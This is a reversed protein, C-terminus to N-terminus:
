SAVARVFVAAGGVGALTLLLRRVGQPSVRAAIPGSLAFGAAAWPALKVSLALQQVGFRGVLALAALSLAAGACPICGLTSRLRPPDVRQMVVAFPPAGAGRITALVGSVVGAGAWNTPPPDVQGGAACVGVGLGIL